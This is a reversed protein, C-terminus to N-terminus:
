EGRMERRRMPMTDILAGIEAPDAVRGLRLKEGGDKGVLIVTFGEPEFRARLPTDRGTDVVIVNDRELLADRAAEFRELQEALRPDGDEAFIVIPRAEWRFRDLSEASGPGLMTAGTMLMTALITM